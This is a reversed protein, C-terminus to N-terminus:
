KKLVVVNLSLKPLTRGLVLSHCNKRSPAGHVDSEDRLANSKHGGGIKEYAAKASDWFELENGNRTNKIKTTKPECGGKGEQSCM